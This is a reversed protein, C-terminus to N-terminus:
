GANSAHETGKGINCRECLTQLNDLVTDGGKSWPVVHDVHLVISQQRAPSAGCSRCSFSDRRMVLFRLRWGINRSTRRPRQEPPAPQDSLSIAAERTEPPVGSAASVFAGLASRWSGFLRIYPTASYQSAPRRMDAKRPARGLHEWVAGLNAHLAEADAQRSVHGTDLGAAVLGKSWSGFRRKIPDPSFRGRSRYLSQTMPASDAEAAVRQLDAILDQSPIGQRKAVRLGARELAGNWSGFRSVLTVENFRGRTAYVDRRVTDLGLEAAVRRLDALLEGDPRNRNDPPLEYRM